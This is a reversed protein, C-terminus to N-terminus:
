DARTECLLKLWKRNRLWWDLASPGMKSIRSDGYSFWEKITHLECGIQIHEDMITIDWRGQINICNGSVRAKGSVRADGYVRANDFVQADGYVRANDFVEADGYVWASDSVWAKGSVQANDFVWANDFVEADGYVRAEDYVRANDFVQANDFVEADGYVRAEGFVEADGYVWAEGTQSLNKEKEIYGGIDGITVDGFSILAKIRFLKTVGMQKMETTLEFKM